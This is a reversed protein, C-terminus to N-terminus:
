RKGQTTCDTTLIASEGKQTNLAGKRPPPQQKVQPKECSNGARTSDRRLLGHVLGQPPVRSGESLQGRTKLFYLFHPLM